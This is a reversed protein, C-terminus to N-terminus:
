FPVASRKGLPSTQRDVAWTSSPWRKAARLISAPAARQIPESQAASREVGVSCALVECRPPQAKADGGLGNQRSLVNCVLPERSGANRHREPGKVSSSAREPAEYVHSRAVDLVQGGRRVEAVDDLRELQVLGAELRCLLDAPASHSNVRTTSRLETSV